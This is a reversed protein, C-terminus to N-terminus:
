TKSRSNMLEHWFSPAPRNDDVVVREGADCFTYLLDTLPLSFGQAQAERLFYPLERFKVGIQEAESIAAAAATRSVMARWGDSGGVAQALTAADVGALVGFAVAELYAAAGLGMALQNVGKVVQGSGSPGCYTLGEMGGVTELIPRVREFVAPDGAAFTRLAGKEAGQPGGSVPAEILAAGRGALRDAIRRTEPPTTTGFDILVQGNRAFPILCADAVQVFADSSPLSLCVIEVDAQLAELTAAPEAGAARAAELRADDLDSATVRYGGRLLSRTMPLGMAGVGLFGIHPLVSM